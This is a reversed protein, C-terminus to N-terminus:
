FIRFCYSAQDFNMMVPFNTSKLRPYHKMMSDILMRPVWKASVNSYVFFQVLNFVSGHALHLSKEWFKVIGIRRDVIILSDTQKVKDKFWSVPWQKLGTEEISRQNSNVEKVWRKVTSVNLLARCHINVARERKWFLFEITIYTGWLIKNGHIDWM